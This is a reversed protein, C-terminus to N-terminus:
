HSLWVLVTGSTIATLAIDRLNVEAGGFMISVTDKNATGQLILTHTAEGRFKFTASDAAGTTYGTFSLGAVHVPTHNTPDYVPTASATDLYWPNGALNNAM